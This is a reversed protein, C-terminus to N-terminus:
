ESEPPSADAEVGADAAPAVPVLKGKAEDIVPPTEALWRGFALQLDHSGYADDNVPEERMTGFAENSWIKAQAVLVLEGRGVAFRRAISIHSGDPSAADIFPAGQELAIDLLYASGREINVPSRYRGRGRYRPQIAAVEPGGSPFLDPASVPMARGTAREIEPPSDPDLDDLGLVRDGTRIVLGPLLHRLLQVSGPQPEAPDFMLVMREGKALRGDIIKLERQDYTEIPDAFYLVDAWEDLELLGLPFLRPDRSFNIFM